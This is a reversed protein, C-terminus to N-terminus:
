GDKTYNIIHHGMDSRLRPYKIIWKIEFLGFFFIPRPPQGHPKLARRKLLGIAKRLECRWCCVSPHPSPYLPITKRWLPNPHNWVPPTYSSLYYEGLDGVRGVHRGVVTPRAQVAKYRTVLLRMICSMVTYPIAPSNERKAKRDQRRWSSFGKQWGTQGQWGNLSGTSLFRFEIMSDTRFLLFVSHLLCRFRSVEPCDGESMNRLGQMM